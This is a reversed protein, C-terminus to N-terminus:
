FRRSRGFGGLCLALSTEREAGSVVALDDAWADAGDFGLAMSEPWVPWGALLEPQVLSVGVFWIGGRCWSGDLTFGEQYNQGAM